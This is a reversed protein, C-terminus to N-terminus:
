NDAANQFELGMGHVKLQFCVKASFSELLSEKKGGGRERGQKRNNARWGNYSMWSKVHFCGMAQKENCTLILKLKTIKGGLIDGMRNFHNPM